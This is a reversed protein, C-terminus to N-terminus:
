FNDKKKILGVIKQQISHLFLNSFLTAYFLFCFLKFVLSPVLNMINLHVYFIMPLKYKKRLSFLILYVTTCILEGFSLYSSKRFRIISLFM